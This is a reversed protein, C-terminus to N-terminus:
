REKLGVFQDSAPTLTAIECQVRILEAWLPEGNEDLWDAYILRIADDDPEKFIAKQFSEHSM